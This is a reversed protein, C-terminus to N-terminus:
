PQNEQKQQPRIQPLPTHFPLGIEEELNLAKISCKSLILNFLPFRMEQPTEKKKWAKLINKSEEKSVSLLIIGEFNVEAIKEKQDHKEKGEEKESYIVSFKFTNKLVNEEKLIDFKVPEIDKFEINTSISPGAKFEKNKNASIKTFNFGIVKM